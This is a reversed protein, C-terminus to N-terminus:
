TPLSSEIRAKSPIPLFIREFQEKAWVELKIEGPEGALLRVEQRAVYDGVRCIVHEGSSAYYTPVRLAPGAPIQRLMDEDAWAVWNRDVWQPAAAVNGPYQYADIITIRSEYRRSTPLIEGEVLRAARSRADLPRNETPPELSNREPDDRPEDSGGTGEGPLDRGRDPEAPRAPDPRRGAGPLGDSGPQPTQPNRVPRKVPKRPRSTARVEHEVPQLEALGGSIVGGTTIPTFDEAGIAATRSDEDDDEDPDPDEGPEQRIEEEQDEDDGGKRRPQDPEGHPPEQNPDPQNPPPPVPRRPPPVPNVAAALLRDLDGPDETMQVRVSSKRPM